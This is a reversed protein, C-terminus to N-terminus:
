FSFRVMFQMIRMFGSQLTTQGKRVNVDDLSRSMIEGTDTVLEYMERKKPDFDAFYPYDKFPIDDPNPPAVVVELMAGYCPYYAAVRELELGPLVLSTRGVNEAAAWESRGIRQAHCSRHDSRGRIHIEDRQPQYGTVSCSVKLYTIVVGDIGQDDAPPEYEFVTVSSRWRLPHTRDCAVPDMMDPSFAIRRWPIDIPVSFSAMAM